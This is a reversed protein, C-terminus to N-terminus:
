DGKETKMRNIEAQLSTKANWLAKVERKLAKVEEKLVRVQEAMGATDEIPIPVGTQGKEKIGMTALQKATIRPGKAM